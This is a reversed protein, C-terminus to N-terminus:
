EVTLPAKSAILAPVCWPNIVIQTRPSVNSVADATSFALPVPAEDKPARRISGEPARVIEPVRTAGKISKFPASQTVISPTLVPPLESVIELVLVLLEAPVLVMRKM